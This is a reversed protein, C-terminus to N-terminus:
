IIPLVMKKNTKCSFGNFNRLYSQISLIIILYGM